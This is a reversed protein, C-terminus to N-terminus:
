PRRAVEGPAWLGAKGPRLSCSHVPAPELDSHWEFLAGDPRSFFVRRFLSFTFPETRNFPVLSLMRGLLCYGFSVRAILGVLSVYLMWHMAPLLGTLLWGIYAVRVQVPFSRLRRLRLWYYATMAACLVLAAEIAWPLGSLHAALLPITLAWHWWSPDTFVHANLFTRNM